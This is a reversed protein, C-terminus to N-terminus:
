EEEEEDVSKYLDFEEMIEAVVSPSEILPTDCQFISESCSPYWDDGFHKRIIDALKGRLEEKDIYKAQIAKVEGRSRCGSLLQKWEIVERFDERSVQLFHAGVPPGIFVKNNDWDFGASVTAVPLAPTGGISAHLRDAAFLATAEPDMKSLLDILEKVKM